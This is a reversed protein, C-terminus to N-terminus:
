LTLETVGDGVGVDGLNAAYECRIRLQHVPPTIVRPPSSIQKMAKM